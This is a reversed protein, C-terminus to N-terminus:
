VVTVTFIAMKLPPPSVATPLSIIPIDWHVGFGTQEKCNSFFFFFVKVPATSGGWMPLLHQNM